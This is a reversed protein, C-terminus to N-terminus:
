LGPPVVMAWLVHGLKEQGQPWALDRAAERIGWVWALHPSNASVERTGWDEPTGGAGVGDSTLCCCPFASAPLLPWATLLLLTRRM